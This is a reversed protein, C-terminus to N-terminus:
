TRTQLESSQCESQGNYIIGYKYLNMYAYYDSPQTGNVGYSVRLKGDTLVSKVPNTFSEDIFRWAGSVSWFSGWRNERALRSSGDTRYSLGLYYRDAYNYNARGLFSTMRYSQRNTEASTSGANTLEYLDGPYDQGAMYNFAYETDQTEFGLLADINHLGFSNIYSLQTQTNLQDNRNVIRQM